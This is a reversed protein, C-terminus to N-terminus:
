LQVTLLSITMRNSRTTLRPKAARTASVIPNAAAAATAKRGHAGTSAISPRRRRPVRHLIWRPLRYGLQRSQDEVQLGIPPRTPPLATSPLAGRAVPTASRRKGRYTRPMFRLWITMASTATTATAANAIALLPPPPPESPPPPPEPPVVAGLPASAI